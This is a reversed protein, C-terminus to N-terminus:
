AEAEEDDTVVEISIRVNDFHKMTLEIYSEAIELNDFTGTITEGYKMEQHVIVRYKMNNEERYPFFTLGSENMRLAINMGKDIREYFEDVVNKIENQTM